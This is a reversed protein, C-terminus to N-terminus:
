KEVHNALSLANVFCKCKSRFEKVFDSLVSRTRDFATMKSESVRVMGKM